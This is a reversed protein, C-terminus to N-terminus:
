FWIIILGGYAPLPERPNPITTDTQRFCSCLIALMLLAFITCIIRKM